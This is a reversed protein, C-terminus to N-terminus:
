FSHVAQVTAHCSLRVATYNAMVSVKLLLIVTLGYAIQVTSGAQDCTLLVSGVVAVVSTCCCVVATAVCVEVWSAYWQTEVVM